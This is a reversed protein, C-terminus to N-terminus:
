KHPKVVITDEDHLNMAMRLNKPAILEIIQRPSHHTRDPYIISGEVSQDEYTITCPWIFVKGFSRNTSEDRFGDILHYPSRLLRQFAEIDEETRLNLNLTGSFPKWGLIRKFQHTYGAMSIYYGGEGLGKTLIGRIQTPIRYYMKQLDSFAPLLIEKNGRDSIQIKLGSKTQEKLIYDQEKLEELWRSITQQSVNLIDKLETTKIIISKEIAGLKGLVILLRLVNSKIYSM